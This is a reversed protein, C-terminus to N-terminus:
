PALVRTAETVQYFIFSKQQKLNGNNSGEWKNFRPESPASGISSGFPGLFISANQLGVFLMRAEFHGV